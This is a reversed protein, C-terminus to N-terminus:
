KLSSTNFRGSVSRKKKSKLDQDLLTTKEGSPKYAYESDLGNLSSTNEYTNSGKPNKNDKIDPEDVKAAREKSFNRYHFYMILEVPIFDYLVGDLITWLLHKFSNGSPHAMYDKVGRIMYTSSFVSLIIWLMCIERNFYAREASQWNVQNRKKKLLSVLNFVCIFLLISLSFYIYMMSDGFKKILENREELTTNSEIYAFYIFM